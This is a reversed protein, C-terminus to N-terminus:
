LYYLEHCREHIWDSYNISLKFSRMWHLLGSEFLSRSMYYLSFVTIYTTYLHSFDLQFRFFLLLMSKYLCISVNVTIHQWTDESWLVNLNCRRILSDEESIFLISFLLFHNFKLQFLKSSPPLSFPVNFTLYVQNLILHIYLYSVLVQM